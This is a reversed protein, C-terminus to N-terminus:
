HYVSANLAEDRQAKTGAFLDAPELERGNICYGPIRHFNLNVHVGYQWGMDMAQDIKKLPEERIVSWDDRSGWVWYSLPLRAFDFKWEAMTAFDFEEYAPGEYPHQPSSFRGQLNFGRWRPIRNAHIDDCSSQANVTAHCSGFLAHTGIQVAGYAMAMNKGFARRNM